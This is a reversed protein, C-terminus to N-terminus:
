ALIFKRLIEAVGSHNCDNETIYDASAKVADTANKMAAGVAAAEIMSIDNEQDGAAVTNALPIQLLECLKKVAHGKSVHEPVHELYHPSSYFMSIKGKAWTEMAARYADMKARDHLDIVIMKCPEEALHEPLLPDEVVPIHIAQTYVRTEEGAHRCLLSTDSYTHCYLGAEQTKEFIVRAYELPITRRYLTKKAACDYILGGNFAIAYCGERDLGLEKLIPLFGSLPRGTNFVIKHGAALAESIVDMNEKTVQKESNLLTDDMDTFFIKVTQNM